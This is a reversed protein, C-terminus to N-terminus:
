VTAIAYSNTWAAFQAGTLTIYGDQQGDGSTYGDIAWPNRVVVNNNDDISVVTYAHGGVLLSGAPQSGTGMTVSKGDAIAQKLTALVSNPNQTTYGWTSPKGFATAVETMFGAEISAYTNKAYRHFAWAKELMAVWISGEAGFAAYALRDVAYSPLDADLRYFLTNAGKKMQVAFTGDGLAVISQRILNQDLAAFSGITALFYCDGLQGQAVDDLAPGESSFLPNNKFNRYAAGKKLTPDPIAQGNLEKSVKNQFAAVRHVAGAAIEEESADTLRETVNSDVWYVDIGAGGHVADAAGGGIAIILDDDNGGELTDNGAGGYLSDNGDNGYLKNLGAGGYLRDHGAGGVLTDNGAGGYILDDGDTGTINDHGLSGIVVEFTDVINDYEGTMGDNAIGDGLTLTVGQAASHDGYDLSDSGGGGTITDNGLGGRISDNGDGGDILDNGAGGNIADNGAGADIVDNGADGVLTDIGAGTVLSDDGLGGNLSNNGEGGYLTDNGADGQLYDNGGSGALVDNGAGGLLKNNGAGGSLTDNGADGVLVDAAGGGTLSDDGAGGNLSTAGSSATLTDNGLDGLLTAAIAVSSDVTVSDNGAKANIVLKTAPGTKVVTWTGNTVTWVNSMRSVAIEDANVTGTITLVNKSLSVTLPDNAFLKREELAQMVPAQIARTILTNRVHNPQPRM